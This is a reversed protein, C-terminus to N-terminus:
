KLIYVFAYEFYICFCIWFPNYISHLGLPIFNISSFMSSLGHVHPLLSKKSIIGFTYGICFLISLNYKILFKFGEARQFVINLSHSHVNCHAFINTCWIDPFPSLDLICLSGELSLLLFAFLGAKKKKKKKQKTKKKPQM